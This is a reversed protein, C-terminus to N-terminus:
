LMSPTLIHISLNLIYIRWLSDYLALLWRTWGFKVDQAATPTTYTVYTLLSVGGRFRSFGVDERIVCVVGLFFSFM